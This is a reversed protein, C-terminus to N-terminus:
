FIDDDEPILGYNELVLRKVIAINEETWRRYNTVTRPVQFLGQKELNAFTKYQIPKYPQGRAQRIRKVTANIDALVARTTTYGFDRKPVKLSINM